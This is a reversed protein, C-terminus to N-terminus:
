WTVIYVCLSSQNYMFKFQSSTPKLASESSIIKYTVYSRVRWEFKPVPTDCQHMQVQRPGPAFNGRHEM